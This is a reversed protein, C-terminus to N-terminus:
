EVEAVTVKNGDIDYKLKQDDDFDLHKRVLEAVMLDVGQNLYKITYRIKDLHAQEEKSLKFQKPM